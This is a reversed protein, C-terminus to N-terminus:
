CYSLNPQFLVTYMHKYKLQKRGDLLLFNEELRFPNCDLMACFISVECPVSLPVTDTIAELLCFPFSEQMNNITSLAPKQKHRIVADIYSTYQGQWCTLGLLEQALTNYVFHVTFLTAICVYNKTKYIFGVQHM